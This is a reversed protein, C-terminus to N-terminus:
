ICKIDISARLQAARAVVKKWRKVAARRKLRAIAAPRGSDGSDGLADVKRKNTSVTVPSSMTANPKRSPSAQHTNAHQQRDTPHRANSPAIRWVDFAPDTKKYKM